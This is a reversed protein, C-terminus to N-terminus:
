LEEEPIRKDLIVSKPLRGTRFCTGVRYAAECPDSIGVTANKCKPLLKQIFVNHKDSSDNLEDFLFQGDRIIRLDEMVCLWFCKANRDMAEDISEFSLELVDDETMNYKSACDMVSSTLYVYPIALCYQLIVVLIHIKIFFIDLSQM